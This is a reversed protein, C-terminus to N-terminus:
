RGLPILSGKSATASLFPIWNRAALRASEDTVDAQLGIFGHAIFLTPLNIVGQPLIQQPSRVALFRHMPEGTPEVVHSEGRLVHGGVTRYYHSKLPAAAEKLDKMAAPNDARFDFAVEVRVRDIKVPTFERGGRLGALFQPIKQDKNPLLAVLQGGGPADPDPNATLYAALSERSDEVGLRDLREFRLAALVVVPCGQLRLGILEWFHDKEQRGLYISEAHPIFSYGDRVRELHERVHAFHPQQQKM